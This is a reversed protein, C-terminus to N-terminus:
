IRASSNGSKSSGALVRRAEGLTVGVERRFVAGLHSQSCFGLDHAIGALDADGDALREMASALRLHQRYQHPSLGTEHRFSRALHFPSRSVADALEHLSLRTDRDATEALLRRARAVAGTLPSQRRSTGLEDVLSAIAVTGGDGARLRHQAAHVRYLSRPSLLCFAPAADDARSPRHRSVVLSRRTAHTSPRLQYVMADALHMATLGDVQWTSGGWRLDLMTRGVPFIIRRSELTYPGSWGPEEKAHSRLHEVTFEHGAYLLTRDHPM